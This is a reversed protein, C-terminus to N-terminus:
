RPSLQPVPKIFVNKRQRSAWVSLSDFISKTMDPRSLYYRYSRVFLDKSVKHLQLVQAYHKRTELEPNLFASDKALYGQYFQDAQILDWLIFEMQPKQIFESPVKDRSHCGPIVLLLLLWFANRM